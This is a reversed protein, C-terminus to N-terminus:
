SGSEEQRAEELEEPTLPDEAPNVEVVPDGEVEEPVDQFEQESMAAEEDPPL